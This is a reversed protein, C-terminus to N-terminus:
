DEKAQKKRYCCGCDDLEYESMAEMNEKKIQAWEANTLHIMAYPFDPDPHSDRPNRRWDCFEPPNTLANPDLM